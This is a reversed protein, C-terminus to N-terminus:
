CEGIDTFIFCKVSLGVCTEKHMEFFSRLYKNYASLKLKINCLFIFYMQPLYMIEVLSLYM